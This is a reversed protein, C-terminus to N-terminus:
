HPRGDRQQGRHEWGWLALYLGCITAMALNIVVPPSLTLGHHSLTRGITNLAELLGILVVILAIAGAVQAWGARRMWVGLGILVLGFVAIIATSLTAETATLGGVGLSTVILGTWITTNM